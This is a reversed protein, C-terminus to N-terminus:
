ANCHKVPAQIKLCIWLAISRALLSRVLRITACLSLVMTLASCITTMSWTPSLLLGILDCKEQNDLSLKNQDLVVMLKHKGPRLSRPPFGGPAPPSPPFTHQATPVGAAPPSPPSQSHFTTSSIKHSTIHFLTLFIVVFVLFILFPTDLQSLKFM